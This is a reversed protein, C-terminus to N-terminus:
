RAGKPYGFVERGGAMSLPNNVWIQPTFHGYGSVGGVEFSVPVQILVQKEAVAANLDSNGVGSYIAL